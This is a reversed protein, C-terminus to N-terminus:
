WCVKKIPEPETVKDEIVNVNNDEISIARLAVEVIGPVPNIGNDWKYYTHYKTNLAKAMDVIDLGMENRKEQLETNTM